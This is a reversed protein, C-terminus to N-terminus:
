IKVRAQITIYMYMRSSTYRRAAETKYLANEMEHLVICFMLLQTSNHLIRLDRLKQSLGIQTIHYSKLGFKFKIIKSFELGLLDIFVHM